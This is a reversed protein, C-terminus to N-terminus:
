LLMLQYSRPRKFLIISKYSERVKCDMSQYNQLSVKLIKPKNIGLLTM